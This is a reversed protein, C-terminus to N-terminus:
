FWYIIFIPLHPINVSTTIKDMNKIVNGETYAFWDGDVKMSKGGDSYTGQAISTQVKPLSFFFEGTPFFSFVYKKNQGVVDVYVGASYAIAKSGLATKLKAFNDGGGNTPPTVPNVLSNYQVESVDNTGFKAFVGGETQNGFRGDQDKASFGLAKQVAKVKSGFMGKKIPFTTDPIWKPVGSPPTANTLAPDNVRCKPNLNGKKDYGNRNPDCDPEKFYLYWVAFLIASLIAVALIVRLSIQKTTLAM